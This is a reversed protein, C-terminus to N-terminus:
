FIFTSCRQSLFIGMGHCLHSAVCLYGFQCVFMWAYQMSKLKNTGAFSNCKENFVWNTSDQCVPLGRSSLLISFARKTIEKFYSKVSEPNAKRELVHLLLTIWGGHRHIFSLNKFLTYTTKHKLFVFEIFILMLYYM